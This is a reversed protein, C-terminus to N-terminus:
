ESLKKLRELRDPENAKLWEDQSLLAYALGFYKKADNARDLELLCEGIEEFIYGDQELGNEEVEKELNLQAELAEETRGMARYNRAICWKAIVVGQIDEQASRWELSKNFLVLASDYDELDFYTWGTNNYLPGLWRRAREDSTTEALRIAKNAWELQKEPPEVLQLMHIADIAHYDENNESALQWANLFFPKAKEPDGSSNYVRGRELSYRVRCVVPAETLWPEITDLLAHAAKFQRQLGLTRAIQTMLQAYYSIDRSKEAGPLLKRFEIETQVPDNYDWLKDFDPLATARDAEPASACGIILLACFFSIKYKM